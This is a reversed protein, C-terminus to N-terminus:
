VPLVDWEDLVRELRVCDNEETASLRTSDKRAARASTRDMKLVCVCVSVGWRKRRENELM